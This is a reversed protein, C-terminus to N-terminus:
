ESHSRSIQNCAHWVVAGLKQNRGTKEAMSNKALFSATTAAATCPTKAEVSGRFPSGVVWHEFGRILFSHYTGLLPSHIACRYCCVNVDM